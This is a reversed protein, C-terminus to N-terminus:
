LKQIVEALEASTVHTYIQTTAVSAHGLLEQVQRLNAGSRLLRTAFTHRLMHPTVRKSLGAKEGAKAVLSEIARRQLGRGKYGPFLPIAPLRPQSKLWIKLADIIDIHLPIIREKDGKGRVRVSQGSLDIDQRCLRSVETLRLGALLMLLIVARDRTSLDAQILASAESESLVRPLRRGVKRGHAAKIPSETVKGMLLAWVYFARLASLSRAVTSAAVRPGEETIYDILDTSQANLLSGHLREFKRAEHMYAAVTTTAYRAKLYREWQDLYDDM